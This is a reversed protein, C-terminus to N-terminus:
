YYRFLWLALTTLEPFVPQYVVPTDPNFAMDFQAPNSAVASM